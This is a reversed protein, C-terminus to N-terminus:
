RTFIRKSNCGTRNKGYMRLAKMLMNKKPHYFAEARTITGDKVLTEVYSHDTTIRRFSSVALSNASTFRTFTEKELSLSVVYAPKEM